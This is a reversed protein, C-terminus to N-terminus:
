AKLAAVAESFPALPMEYLGGGLRGAEGKQDLIGLSIVPPSQAAVVGRASLGLRTGLARFYPHEGISLADSGAELAEGEM